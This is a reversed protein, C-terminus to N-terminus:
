FSFDKEVCKASTDLISILKKMNGNEMSLKTLRQAINANLIFIQMSQKSTYTKNVRHITKINVYQVSSFEKKKKKPKRCKIVFDQINLKGHKPRKAPKPLDSDMESEPDM